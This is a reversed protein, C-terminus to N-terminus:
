SAYLQLSIVVASMDDEATKGSILLAALEQPSNGSYMSIVTETEEGVAGDSTLVLLEGEKLSLEYREPAHEGGVGVGPPPSATGIKKTEENGRWYSPSSGWKYLVAGGNSLNLHLLDVTTFRDDGRLLEVGNLLKLASEPVLGSRLLRELLNVTEGCMRQARPGTGMGDCLLVYYDTNMGAFCAGQDGSIRSGNKGMTCIGVRPLYSARKKHLPLREEQMVQLYEAMCEMQQAVVQRSEELQMRYRRRFLMGELEQNIATVFGELHCCRDRFAAPLDESQATGREIIPRAASSLAEYTEEARHQWCRHFRECCRCVREAAGDFVSEAEGICAPAASQPLQRRLLEMVEAAMGLKAGGNERLDSKERHSFIRLKGLLLGLATGAAVALSNGASATDLLLFIVNPIVLYSLAYLSKARPYLRQGLLAPLVLAATTGDRGGGLDIAIGFVIPVNLNGTAVSLAVACLLGLNVPVPLLSLGCVLAAASMLQAQRDVAVASRFVVCFLGGVAWHLVWEGFGVGGSLLEIGKLLACVLATMVPMFWGKAALDTGQFVTVAALMLVTLALLEVCSTGECFVFYGAIAGCAALVSRLGLPLAAILCASLPLAQGRVQAACLLFSGLLLLACDRLLAGGFPLSLRGRAIWRKPMLRQSGNGKM